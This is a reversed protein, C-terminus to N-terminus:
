KQTPEDPTKARLWAEHIEKRTLKIGRAHLADLMIQVIDHWRPAGEIGLDANAARVTKVIHRVESADQSLRRNGTKPLALTTGDLLTLTRSQQAPPSSPTEYQEVAVIGDVRRAGKAPPPPPKRAPKAPEAVAAAAAPATDLRDNHPTPHERFREPGAPQSEAQDAIIAAPEESGTMPKPALSTSPAGFYHQEIARRIDTPSAIMPKVPLSSAISVRRLAEEHTPDDMAIYLTAGQHRVHRVYIPMVTFRDALEAPVRQLLEGSFEVRELSVWPVSLQHSLLQTLQVEPVYGMAVLQKGIPLKSQQQALLAEELQAKTVLGAAVLMDGIRERTPEARAM